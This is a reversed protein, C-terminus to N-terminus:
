NLVVSLMQSDIQRALSVTVLVHFSVATHDRSGSIEDAESWIRVRGFCASGQARLGLRLKRPMAMAFGVVVFQGSANKLM